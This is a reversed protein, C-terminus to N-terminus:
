GTMLAAWSVVNKVLMADFVRQADFIRDNQVYETIMCNWSVVNTHPM